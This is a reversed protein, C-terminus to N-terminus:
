GCMIDVPAEADFVVIRARGKILAVEMAEM